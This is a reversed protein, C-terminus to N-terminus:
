KGKKREALSVVKTSTKNRPAEAPEQSSGTDDNRQEEPPVIVKDIRVPTGGM